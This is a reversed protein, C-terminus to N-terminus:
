NNKKIIIDHEKLLNSSDKCTDCINCERGKMCRKGCKIRSIAFFYDISANFVNKDHFSAVVEHLQGLWRQDKAYIKYLTEISENRGLLEFVDVYKAYTEIDEPRIFFQKIAPIGSWASQAINPYCRVQCGRKKTIEKVKPLDFCLEEVVYVDSAGTEIIGTLVDWSNVHQMFFFPINVDHNAKLAEIIKKVNEDEYTTFVLAFNTLYSQKVVAFFFDLCKNKLFDEADDVFINIRQSKHEELFATLSTDRRNYHINMEAVENSYRFGKKYEVCFKIDSM